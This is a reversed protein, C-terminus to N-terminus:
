RSGSTTLSAERGAMQERLRKLGHHFNVRAAGETCGLIEGIEKFGLESDIRLTIVQRQRDPLEDVLARLEERNEREVMAAVGRAPTSATHDEVPEYKRGGGDRLHNRALNLGISFLWSRVAEPSKLRDRGTWARLFARQVIDRADANHGVMRLVAHYLPEQLRRVLEGFAERDGTRVREGLDALTGSAVVHAVAGAAATTAHGGPQAADIAKVRGESRSAAVAVEDVDEGARTGTDVGMRWPHALATSM